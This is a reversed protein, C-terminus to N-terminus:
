AAGEHIIKWREGERIWYIRKKMLNSLNNSRYDQTFTVVALPQRGPYLFMSVDGM